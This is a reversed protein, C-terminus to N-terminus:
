GGILENFRNFASPFFHIMAEQKEKTSMVAEFMNAFAEKRILSEDCRWYNPHHGWNGQCRCDTLSGFIDSVGAYWDGWLEDSIIEYAENTDCSYKIKTRCIYNEMDQKLCELFKKDDSIFFERDHTNHDILHGVEHFYTSLKGTPNHLDAMYNMFIGKTATNYFPTGCYDGDIIKIKSKNRFYLEKANKNITDSELRESVATNFRDKANDGLRISKSLSATNKRLYTEMKEATSILMYSLEEISDNSIEQFQKVKSLMEKFQEEHPGVQESVNYYTSFLNVADNSMDNVVTKIIDAYERLVVISESNISLIM